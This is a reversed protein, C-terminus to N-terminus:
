KLLATGNVNLQSTYLEYNNSLQKYPHLQLHLNTFTISSSLIDSHITSFNITLEPPLAKLKEKILRIILTNIMIPLVLLAAAIIGIIVLWKIKKNKITELMTNSIM